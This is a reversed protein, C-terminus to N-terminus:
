PAEIMGETIAAVEAKAASRDVPYQEVCVHERGLRIEKKIPTETLCAYHRVSPAWKVMVKRSTVESAM